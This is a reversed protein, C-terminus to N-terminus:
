RARLRELRDLVARANMAGKYVYLMGPAEEGLAQESVRLRESVAFLIKYPLGREVLEVRKWVAARSWFGLAELYVVEGSGQHVFQLDPVCLGVGPLPLLEPSRVVQWASGLAEFRGVLAAVEEPLAAEGAAPGEGLLLARGDDEIGGELKFTLPIREKGWRVDAVLRFRDCAQLHPLLLALQLGYKTTSEFLSFPGDIELRYGVRQPQIACLLRLFKIKRFLHRYSAASACEVEVVVRWARLLVGQAQGQEYLTVLTQASLPPAARLRQAGRLDAYLAEDAQAGTLGLGQGVEALVAARDLETGAPGERRLAAARLFVARRLVEPDVEVPAEFEAHDELLKRLGEGVRKDAPSGFLGACAEEWEERPREVHARTEQLLLEALELARQRQKDSLQAVVLEGGVRRARVLDATLM